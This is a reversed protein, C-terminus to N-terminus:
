NQSKYKIRFAAKEIEREIILNAIKVSAESAECRIAQEFKKQSVDIRYVIHLLKEFDTALLGYVVDALESQFDTLDIPNSIVLDKDDNMLEAHEQLLLSLLQLTPTTM